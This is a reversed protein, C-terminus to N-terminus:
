VMRPSKVCMHSDSVNDLLDIQPPYDNERHRENQRLNKATDERIAIKNETTDLSSRVVDLSIKLESITNKMMLLEKIRVGEM